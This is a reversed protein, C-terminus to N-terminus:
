KFSMFYSSDRIKDSIGGQLFNEIASETTAHRCRTPIGSGGGNIRMLLVNGCYKPAIVLEHDGLTGRRARMLRGDVGGLRQIKM